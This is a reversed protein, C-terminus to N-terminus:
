IKFNTYGYVSSRDLFIFKIWETNLEHWGIDKGSIYSLTEYLNNSACYYIGDKKFWCTLIENVYYNDWDNTLVYKNTDPYKVLLQVLFGQQNIRVKFKLQQSDPELCLCKFINKVSFFSM